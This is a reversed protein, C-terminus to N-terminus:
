LPRAYVDPNFFDQDYISGGDNASARGIAMATAIAADIKRKSKGKHLVRNGASDEHVVANVMQWRLCPEGSHVLTGGVIARDLAAVAPAMSRWGQRHEIAPLGRELLARTVNGGLAPDILIERVNFRACAEAVWDVVRGHDVVRGPTATVHGLRRWATLPVQWEAAHEDVRAEPTFAHAHVPLREGDRWAISVASLDSTASMDVGIWCPVQRAALDDLDLPGALDDWTAPAVFSALSSAQWQNLILQRFAIEARPRRKAEAAMQRLGPLDPYGHALGPNSLHWRDEDDLGVDPPCAFLVPLLSPDDADGRAVRRADEYLEHALTETGAGATTTIILLSGPVKVLGSRLAAFLEDGGSAWAHIEDAIVLTDTRGHARAGDSSVVDLRAGHRKAAIRKSSTLIKVAADTRKDARLIGAAEEFLIAAQKRDSAAVAASGGPVHEPGITHLIAILAALSTKRAGRGVLLFCTKVIRRGQSDRPGYIAQIIRKQWTDLRIPRGTKPHTLLELFAINRAAAGTPDPIASGDYIWGPWESNSSTSSTM